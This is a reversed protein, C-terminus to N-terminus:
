KKNTTVDEVYKNRAGIIQHVIGGTEGGSRSLHPFMNMGINLRLSDKGQASGRRNMNLGGMKSPAFILRKPSHHITSYDNNYQVWHKM